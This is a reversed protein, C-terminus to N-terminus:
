PLKNTNHLCKQQQAQHCTLNLLYQWHQHRYMQINKSLKETRSVTQKSSRRGLRSFEDCFSCGSRKHPEWDVSPGCGGGRIEFQLHANQYRDLVKKCSNCFHTPHIDDVDGMVDVGFCAQIEGARSECPYKKTRSLKAFKGGGIRCVEQLKSLHAFYAM